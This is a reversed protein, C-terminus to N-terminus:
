LLYKEDYVIGHEEFLQIIEERFSLKAHHVQQNKIYEVVRNKHKHGVTFAGYGNGWGDFKTFFQKEKIWISSSAKVEKVFSSLSITPHIDVLMHIHDKHGNIRHLFCKKNKIIGWIYKFLEAQKEENLIPSRRKTAFVIHYYTQRYSM